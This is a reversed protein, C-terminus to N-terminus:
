IEAVFSLLPFIQAQVCLESLAVCIHFFRSAVAFTKGFYMLVNMLFSKKHFCFKVCDLIM